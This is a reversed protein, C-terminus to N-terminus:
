CASIIRVKLAMRTDLEGLLMLAHESAMAANSPQLAEICRSLQALDSLSFAARQALVAVAIADTAKPHPHVKLEALSVVLAALHQPPLSHVGNALSHGSLALASAMRQRSHKNSSAATHAFASALAALTAAHDAAM